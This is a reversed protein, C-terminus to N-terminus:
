LALRKRKGKGPTFGSNETEALLDEM